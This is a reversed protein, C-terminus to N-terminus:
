ASELIVARYPELSLAIEGHSVKRRKETLLDILTTEPPWGNQKAKLVITQTEPSNNLAVAIRKQESQRLYAYTNTRSDAHLSIFSGSTLAPHSKRVAILKKHWGLLEHNQHAEDWIMPRRSDEWQGKDGSMGIEDGYYVAPTGVYTMQFVLACMLKEVQDGCLTLFRSTDHSGLLNYLIENAQQPYAMRLKSLRADFEEARITGKAFFDIVLDRLPYNMVSDLQDGMLWPTADHPVEGIIIAEPKAKKVTKRFDQWFEHDIETATDLRWGDIDAENIWHVAAEILYKRVEANETRLRPLRWINRGWTEYSPVPSTKIPFSYVRFWDKYESSPGKKVVDQFAWFEYGCHDFVGDLIIRIGAEHCKQVLKEFTALDGFHPDIQYYDTPDYKHTTPSTFIPTLYLATVGLEALYRLKDMIGQLDGGYFTAHTQPLKGWEASNPPDNAKDGNCFREPFIQYFVAKRAWEPTIFVDNERIYLFEFFPLGLEKSQPKTSTLGAETLWLQKSGDDLQFTYRFRRSTPVKIATRFYDYLDDVAARPMELKELPKEPEWPDGHFLKCNKLDGKKARLMISLTDADLLYAYPSWPKHLIAEPLM